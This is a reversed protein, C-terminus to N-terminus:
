SGQNRDQLKRMEAQVGVAVQLTQHLIQGWESGQNNIQLARMAALNSQFVTPNQAIFDRNERLIRETKLARILDARALKLAEVVKARDAFGAIDNGAEELQDKIHIIRVVDNYKTIELALVRLNELERYRKLKAKLQFNLVQTLGLFVGVGVVLGLLFLSGQSISSLENNEAATSLRMWIAIFASYGSVALLIVRQKLPVKPPKALEADNGIGSMQQFDAENITLGQLDTGM